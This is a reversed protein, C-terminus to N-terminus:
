IVLFTASLNAEKNLHDILFTRHQVSSGANHIQSESLNSHFHVIRDSM